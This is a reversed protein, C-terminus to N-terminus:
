RWLSLPGIVGRYLLLYASPDSRLLELDRYARSYDKHWGFISIGAMLFFLGSVGGFLYAFVFVVQAQWGRLGEAWDSVGYGVCMGLFAVVLVAWLQALHKRAAREFREVAERIMVKSSPSPAESHETCLSQFQWCGPSACKFALTPYEKGCSSCHWGDEIPQQDDAECFPCAQM